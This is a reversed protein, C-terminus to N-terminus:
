DLDHREQGQLLSLFRTTQKRLGQLVASKGRAFGYREELLGCRQRASLLIMKLRLELKLQQREQASALSFQLQQLLFDELHFARKVADFVSKSLDPPEVDPLSVTRPPLPLTGTQRAKEDDDPPSEALPFLGSLQEEILRMDQSIQERCSQFVDCSGPTSLVRPHRTLAEYLRDLETATVLADSLEALQAPTPAAQNSPTDFKM